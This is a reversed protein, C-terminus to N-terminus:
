AMKFVIANDTALHECFNRWSHFVSEAFASLTEHGMQIRQQCPSQLMEAVNDGVTLIM